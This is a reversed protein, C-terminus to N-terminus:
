REYILDFVSYIDVLMNYKDRKGIDLNELM